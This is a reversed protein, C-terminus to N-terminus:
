DEEIYKWKLPTGNKLKGCYPYSGECCKVIDEKYLKYKKAAVSSNDFVEGNTICQVKKVEVKKVKDKDEYYCWVLPTGDELKGCYPYYKHGNCCKAINGFDLDYKDKADKVRDFVEGTTICYLKRERKKNFNVFNDYIPQRREKTIENDKLQESQTFWRLNEVCNNKRNTDIHDVTPKNEPNPIFTVAIMRHVRHNKNDIAISKYGNGSNYGYTVKGTSLNKIRGKTSCKYRGTFDYFVGSTICKADKWIEGPLDVNVKNNKSM